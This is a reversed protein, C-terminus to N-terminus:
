PTYAPMNNIQVVENAPPGNNTLFRNLKNSIVAANKNSNTGWPCLRKDKKPVVHHVEAALPDYQSTGKDDPDKLVLPETCTKPAGNDECPWMFGVLDSHIEGEHANRNMELIRQRQLVKMGGNNIYECDFLRGAGLKEPETLNRYPGNVETPTGNVPILPTERPAKQYNITIKLAVDAGVQLTYDGNGVPQCTYGKDYPVGGWVENINVADACAKQWTRYFCDFTNAESIYCASGFAAIYKNRLAVDSSPNGLLPIRYRMCQNDVLGM